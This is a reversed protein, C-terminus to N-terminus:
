PTSGNRSRHIPTVVMRIARMGRVWAPGVGNSWTIQTPDGNNPSPDIGVAFQMDEVGLQIPIAGGIPDFAAPLTGITGAEMMLAPQGNSVGIFYHEVKAPMLLDGKNFGRQQNDAFNAVASEAYAVSVGPASPTFVPASLLAGSSMNTALLLTQAATLGRGSLQAGTLGVSCRVYLPGFGARQITTAAGTDVCSELLASRHTRVVWLEDPGTTSNVIIIPSTLVVVGAHSINVGGSMGLGASQLANMIADGGVRAAENADSLEKGRRSVNMGQVALTMTMAVVVVLIGMSVIIEILTMGRSSPPTRM